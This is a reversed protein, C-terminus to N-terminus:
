VRVFAFIIQKKKRPTHKQAHTHANIHTQLCAMPTRVGIYAKVLARRYTPIHASIDNANLCWYINTSPAQAHIQLRTHAHVRTYTYLDAFMDNVNSCRYINTNQAHTHKHASM